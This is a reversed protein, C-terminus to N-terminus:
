AKVKPYYTISIHSTGYIMLPLNRERERELLKIKGWLVAFGHVNETRIVPM